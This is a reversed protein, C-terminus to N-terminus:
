LMALKTHVPSRTPISQLIKTQRNTRFYKQTIRESGIDLADAILYKCFSGLTGSGQFRQDCVPFSPLYLKTFFPLLTIKGIAIWRLM